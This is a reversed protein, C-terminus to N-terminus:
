SEGDKVAKGEPFLWVAGVMLAGLILALWKLMGAGAQHEVFFLVIAVVVVIASLIARIRTPM